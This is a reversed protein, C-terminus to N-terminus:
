LSILVMLSSLVINPLSADVYLVILVVSLTFMWVWLLGFRSLHAMCFMSQTNCTDRERCVFASRFIDKITNIVDSMSETSNSLLPMGFSTVPSILQNCFSSLVALSLRIYHGVRTGFRTM